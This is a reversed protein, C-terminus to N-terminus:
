GAACTLFRYNDEIGKMREREVDLGDIFRKQMLFFIGLRVMKMVEEKVAGIWTVM